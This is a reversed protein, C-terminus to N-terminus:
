LRAGVCSMRLQNAAWAGPGAMGGARCHGPWSVLGALAEKSVGKELLKLPAVAEATLMGLRCIVLVLALLQVTPLRVVRWLQLYAEGLPLVEDEEDQEEAAADQQAHQAADGGDAAACTDAAGGLASLRQTSSTM